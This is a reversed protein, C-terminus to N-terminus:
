AMYLGREHLFFLDSISIPAMAEASGSFAGLLLRAVLESAYGKTFGAWLTVAFYGTFTFLYMPRRGYKLILPMWIINSAGQLLATSTFFYSVKSIAAIFGPDTPPVGMFDITIDVIAVTPGAALFNCLIMAFCVVM